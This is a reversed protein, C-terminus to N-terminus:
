SRKHPTEQFSPLTTDQSLGADSCFTDLSSRRWFGRRFLPTREFRRGDVQMVGRSSLTVRLLEREREREGEGYGSPVDGNALRQVEETGDIGRTNLRLTKCM